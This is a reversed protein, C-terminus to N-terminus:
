PRRFYLVGSGEEGEYMLMLRCASFGFKVVSGLRALYWSEVANAASDPCIMRTAGVPGVAIDGPMEGPTVSAFYRNCGSQGQFRGDAYRLTVPPAGAGPADEERDSGGLTWEVGEMIGATLERPPSSPPLQSLTGERFEWEEDAVEDPCCLAGEPGARLVRMKLRRGSAEASVVQVRDGLLATAKNVTRSGERGILAIYIYEGSGGSNEGILVVAGASGDGDANWPVLFGPVLYVSPRAAGGEVFVPGEWRGDKLTVTESDGELGHVTMGGAGDLTPVPADPPAAPREEKGPGCSWLLGMVCFSLILVSPKVQKRTM